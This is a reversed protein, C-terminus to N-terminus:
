AILGLFCAAVCSMRLEVFSRHIGTPTLQFRKDGDVDVWDAVTLVIGGPNGPDDDAECGTWWPCFGLAGSGPVLELLETKNIM